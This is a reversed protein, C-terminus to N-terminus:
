RVRSAHQQRGRSGRSGRSGGLVRVELLSKDATTEFKKCGSPTQLTVQYASVRLAARRAVPAPRVQMSRSVTAAM